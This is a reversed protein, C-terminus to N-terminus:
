NEKCKCLATIQREKNKVGVIWRQSEEEVLKNLLTDIKLIVLSNCPVSPTNVRVVEGKKIYQRGIEDIGKEVPDATIQLVVKYIKNSQDSKCSLVLLLLFVLYNHQM